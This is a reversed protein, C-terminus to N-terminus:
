ISEETSDDNSHLEVTDIAVSDGVEAAITCLGLSFGTQCDCNKTIASSILYVSIGYKYHFCESDCVQHIMQLRLM